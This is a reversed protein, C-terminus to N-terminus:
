VLVVSDVVSYGVAVGGEDSERGKTRLLTGAGRNVICGADKDSFLAIGYVGLESVVEGENATLCGGKVLLNRLGQPPEILSMLIYGEKKPPEGPATPTAELLRLFRPIDERYINNGGGERQPKLVFKEPEEMALRYAEKGMETDDMPYLGTFTQRLDDVDQSSFRDKGDGRLLFDELMGPEALVQQVKKAGALQLALSPCKIANSRELMLRTSWQEKSPYDTPTYGARYYVVAIESADSSPQLPDSILLERKPSDGLRAYKPIEDFTHRIVHIGHAELLEYELWKQDFINREGDQCVFLIKAADNGYAKWGEALGRALSRLADNSPFNTPNSLLSSTGFYKTSAQLYNHLKGALESLAGFSSSITNFEVQKLELPNGQEQPEHLLYDSRFLGLQLPQVLEDRCEKWCRWLEGQFEDVKSVVGGMVRDLFEVDKTVNVYLANYAPQIRVALDYLERPFPTPCLSLPAPIASTPPSTPNPPLLTFGHSLAYTSALLLLKAQQEPTFTPPWVPLYSTTM